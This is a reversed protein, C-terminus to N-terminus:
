GPTIEPKLGSPQSDGPVADSCHLAGGSSALGCATSPRSSPGPVGWQIPSAVEVGRGGSAIGTEALGTPRPINSSVGISNSSVGGTGANQCNYAMNPSSACSPNGLHTAGASCGGGVPCGVEYHVARSPPVCLGGLGNSPQGSFEDSLQPAGVMYPGEGAPFVM